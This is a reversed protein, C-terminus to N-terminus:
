TVLAHALDTRRELHGHVAEVALSVGSSGIVRNAASSMRTEKASVFRNPLHRTVVQSMLNAPKSWHHRQLDSFRTRGM